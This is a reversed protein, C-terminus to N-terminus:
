MREYYNQMICVVYNHQRNESLYLQGVSRIHVYM